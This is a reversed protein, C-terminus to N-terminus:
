EDMEKPFAVRFEAGGDPRNQAALTGRHDEVIAASIALGLGMGQGSDRTTVFPETLDRLSQAGLGHGNDSVSFWVGAANAGITTTIRPPDADDCADLANRLLNTMVQEIRLRNGQLMVPADPWDRGVQAGRAELNPAMLDLAAQMASRLDVPAFDEQGKRAFFKLQRTIGEMRDVLGQLRETVKSRGGQIEAAALHNRMAAIPQGLEHTVSAALKGLAALRGARELEDQTRKLRREALRREDIEVALRANAERLAAEKEESRRLAATVRKTRLSQVLILALGAALVMSGTVLLSRITARETDAMYHLSWDHPLGKAVLHGSSPWDLPELPQGPFQRTQDIAARQAASLPSLTRYLWEPASSLIVVGDENALLVREGAARWSAQLGALDIKIAIVGITEGYEGAVADALFYGPLGTTAGIGYFWGQRGALAASVYPRFSYDEGVFSGPRDANSAATTLGAADMLYIADLGSRDAFARLRLNLPAKDGGAAATIVHLDRSLVFPLHGFRNLEALVTNRYLSLRANAKVLEESRFYGLSGWFTAAAIGTVLAVVVGM